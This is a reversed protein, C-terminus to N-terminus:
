GHESGFSSVGCFLHCDNKTTETVFSTTLCYSLTKCDHRPPYLCVWCSILVVTSREGRIFQYIAFSPFVVHSRPTSIASSFLHHHHNRNRNRSRISNSRVWTSVLLTPLLLLHLGAM